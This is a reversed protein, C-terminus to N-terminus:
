PTLEDRSQSAFIVSRERKFRAGEGRDEGLERAFRHGAYVAAAITGPVHCDGIATVSEIGARQLRQPDAQLGNLLTEDPLRSTVMVVAACELERPRHSHRHELHIRHTEILRVTHLPVAEIGLEYIRQLTRRREMTYQTFQAPEGAATVLTVERGALRLKEALVNGIYYHDDDIVVVPGAPLPESRIVSDAGFVVPLEAGPIGDPHALGFGDRRWSAGTAIVVHQAGLECLAEVDLDNDPFISVNPLRALQQVRYDRVRIWEALGPLRAERAVRGGLEREREALLVEYGRKGLIHACELGAPGAGVVLVKAPRRAPAVREPHWDRRWEEGVTPNQTCRSPAKLAFGSACVNCGICERIEEERGEEIKKPLFPDAISPRAAGIFDQVGRRILSAMADPSTYRGVGVVPRTTRQKVFAAFREQSGMPGFRSVLSDNEWDSINIDWLDPLEGVLAMVAAGEEEITIGRPGQLEDMCIRVAVARDPGAGERTAEIYQRLLRVRNELSGGYADTRRNFHRSLFSLPPGEVGSADAYIIDVGAQRARRAADRQNDLFTRIDRRTMARVQVPYGTLVPYISPGIPAERTYLNAAGAGLHGIETGALAGHRHIAEVVRALPEIDGDDWLKMGPYGQDSDYQSECIETNVVAWGGEAKIARHGIQGNIYQDGMGACQPTQYFRNRAVVPGIRVPEFLIDYRPNRRTM